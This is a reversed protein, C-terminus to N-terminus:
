GAWAVTSMLMIPGGCAAHLDLGAEYQELGKAWEPHVVRSLQRIVENGTIFDTARWSLIGPVNSSGLWRIACYHDRRRCPLV